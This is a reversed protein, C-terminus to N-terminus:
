LQSTLSTKCTCLLQDNKEKLELSGNHQSYVCVRALVYILFCVHAYVCMYACVHKSVCVCM